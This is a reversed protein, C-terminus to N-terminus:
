CRIGSEYMAALELSRRTSECPCLQAPQSKELTRAARFTPQQFDAFHSKNWKRWRLLKIRMVHMLLLLRVHLFYNDCEAAQHNRGQCERLGTRRILFLSCCCSFRYLYGSRHDSRHNRFARSGTILRAFRENNTFIIQIIRTTINEVPTTVNHVLSPIDDLRRDFGASAHTNVVSVHAVQTHNIVHDNHVSDCASSSLGCPNRLVRRSKEYENLLKPTMGFKRSM